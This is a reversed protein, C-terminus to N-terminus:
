LIVLWLDNPSLILPMHYNYAMAIASIFGNRYTNYFVKDKQKVGHLYDHEPKKYCKVLKMNKCLLKCMTECDDLNDFDKTSDKDNMVVDHYAQQNKPHDWGYLEHSLLNMGEV